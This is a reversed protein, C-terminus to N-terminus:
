LKDVIVALLSNEPVMHYEEGDFTFSFGAGDPFIVIDKAKVTIPEKGYAYYRSDGTAVVEAVKVATQMNAPLHLGGRSKSDEILKVLIQERLPKIERM